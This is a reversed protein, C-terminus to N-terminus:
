SILINLHHMETCQILVILIISLLAIHYTQLNAFHIQLQLLKILIVYLKHRVGNLQQGVGLQGLVVDLRPIQVVIIRTYDNCHM